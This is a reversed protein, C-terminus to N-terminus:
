PTVHTEDTVLRGAAPEPSVTAAAMGARAGRKGVEIRRAGNFRRTWYPDAIREIRVRGGRAPAHVFQGDGIAIAVHSWPQGLTNFFLLDGPEVSDLSLRTGIARMDESRRPLDLQFAEGFVFRVFGSCDFGTSPRSGGFRYPTGILTLAMVVAESVPESLPAARTVPQWFLTVLLGVAIRKLRQARLLRRDMPTLVGGTQDGTFM